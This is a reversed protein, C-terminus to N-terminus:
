LYNRGFIKMFEEHSYKFEFAKQAKAQFFKDMARSPSDHLERHHEHCLGVVLGYKDALKRDAWGHLCHHIEVKNSGCIACHKVDDIVISNVKGM